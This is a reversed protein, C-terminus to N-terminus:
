YHQGSYTLLVCDHDYFIYDQRSLAKLHKRLEAKTCSLEDAIMSFDIPTKLLGYRRGLDQIKRLIDTTSYSSREPIAIRHYVMLTIAAIKGFLLEM